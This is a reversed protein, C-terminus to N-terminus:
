FLYTLEVKGASSSYHSGYLGEYDFALDFGLAGTLLLNVSAAVLNQRPFLAGVTFNCGNGSFNSVLSHGIFRLEKVFGIRMDGTIVGCHIVPAVFGVGFGLEPRLFDSSHGHVSLNTAGGGKENFPEQKVFLYDLNGYSLAFFNRGFIERKSIMGLHALYMTSHNTYTISKSIPTTFTEVPFPTSTPTPIQTSPGIFISRDGTVVNRTYSAFADVMFPFTFWTGGIFGSYSNIHAAAQDADTWHMKSKAYSFGGTAMGNTTLTDVAVVVGNFTDKYGGFAQGDKLKHQQIEEGYVATWIGGCFSPDFQRDYGHQTFISRVREGAAEEAYFIANYIGPDFQEFATGIESASLGNLINLDAILEPTPNQILNDFCVGINHINGSPIINAFPVESVTIKVTHLDYRVTVPFRASGSSIPLFRGTVFGAANIVTYTMPLFPNLIPSLISGANIAVNGSSYLSSYPTGNLLLSFTSGSEFTTKTTHLTGTPNGPALTGFVDVDKVTGTGSLTGGFDVKTSSNPLTGNIQLTGAKIETLGSYTNAGNLIITGGGSKTLGSAGVGTIPSTITSTTQPDATFTTSMQLAISSNSLSSSCLFELNGGDFNLPGTGLPDTGCVQILGDNVNTTGSFLPSSQLIALTGDGAKTFTGSGSISGNLTSITGADTTITGSSSFILNNPLTTSCTMELDGGGFTINGAGLPGTGCIQTIGGNLNTGGLYSNTGTIVLTNPGPITLAGPGSITGALTNILGTAEITGGSAGLTITNSYFQGTGLLNLKGGNMTLPGSGLNQSTASELTAVNINFGGSFSSNNGTVSLTGTGLLSLPTTGTIVGGWTNTTTGLQLAGGATQLILQNTFTNGSTTFGLTGGNALSIPGTGIAANSATYVLAQNIYFGGTFSGNSGTLTLAGTGLIGLPSAGSITGSWTNTTSPDLTISGGYPNTTLNTSVTIANTYTNTGALLELNGGNGGFTLAGTGLNSPTSVQVTGQNFTVPNAFASNNGTLTITGNQSGTTLGVTYGAAGSFAGSLTTTTGTDAILTPATAFVFNNGITGNGIFELNGGNFTVTNSSSGFPSNGSTKILVNSLLSIGSTSFTNAGTLVITGPGNFTVTGATGSVNSIDNSFTSVTGPSANFTPATGSGFAMLNPYTGSAILNTSPTAGTMEYKATAGGLPSTGSVALASNVNNFIGTFGSNNTAPQIQLIAPSIASYNVTGNGGISGTFSNTAIQAALSTTTNFNIPTSITNAATLRWSTTGSNINLTSLGFPNSGASFLTPVTSNTTGTYTNGGTSNIAIASGSGGELTFTGGGGTLNSNMIIQSNTAAANLAASPGLTAGSSRTFTTSTITKLTGNITLATNPLSGNSAVGLTSGIDITTPGTYSNSGNTLDTEGTGLIFLGGNGSVPGGITYTNGSTVSIENQFNTTSSFATTSFARTGGTTATVQLKAPVNVANELRVIGSGSITSNGLAGDSAISVISQPTITVSGTFNANNNSLTLTGAGVVMLGGVTPDASGNSRINPDGDLHMTAINITNFTYNVLSGSTIFVDNGLGSGATAGTGGSGPPGGVASNGSFTVDSLNLTAPQSFGSDVYFVGGLGAGGGGGGSDAGAAGGQGGAFVSTSNIGVVSLVGQGGGGAGFGGQGGSGAGPVDFYGGGGGGGYTGGSGGSGPSGFPPSFFNGSGGGGGGGGWLLSSTIPDSSGGNPIIPANSGPKDTGAGGGAGGAESSGGTGQEVLVSIGFCAGGGAGSTGSGNGGFVSTGSGGAGASGSSGTSGNGGSDSSSGLGSGLDSGGGGGGAGSTDGGAFNASQRTSPTGGGGGGGGTNTSIASGGSGGPGAGGGGGGVTNAISSGNGGSGGIATNGSYTGLGVSYSTGPPVFHVGGLAPSGGGGGGAAVSSGGSYGSLAFNQFSINQTTISSPQLNRSDARYAM